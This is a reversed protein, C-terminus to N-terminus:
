TRYVWVWVPSLSLNCITQPIRHKWIDELEAQRNPGVTRNWNIHGVSGGTVATTGAAWEDIPTLKDFSIKCQGRYSFFSKCFM